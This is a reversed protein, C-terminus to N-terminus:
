EGKAKASEQGYLIELCKGHLESEDFYRLESVAMQFLEKMVRAEKKTM